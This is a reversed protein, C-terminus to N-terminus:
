APHVIPNPNSASPKFSAGSDPVMVQWLLEPEGGDRLEAPGDGFPQCLIGAPLLSRTTESILIRFPGVAPDFSEKGFKEIRSARNITPSSFSFDFQQKGGLVVNFVEGSHIGARVHYPPLGPPM